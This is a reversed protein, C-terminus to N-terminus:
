DNTKITETLVLGPLLGKIEETAKDLFLSSIKSYLISDGRFLHNFKNLAIEHFLKNSFFWKRAHSANVIQNTYLALGTVENFYICCPEIYKDVFVFDFHNIVNEISNDIMVLIDSDSLMKEPSFGSFYRCLPNDFIYGEELTCSSLRDDGGSIQLKYNVLSVMMNLPDRIMSIRFCDDTNSRAKENFVFHGEILSYINVGNAEILDWIPEDYMPNNVLTAIPKFNREPGLAHVIEKRLWSGMAKPVHLSLITDTGNWRTNYIRM